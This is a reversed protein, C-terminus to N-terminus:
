ENEKVEEVLETLRDNIEEVEEKFKTGMETLQEQIKKMEAQNSRSLMERKYLLEGIETYQEKM